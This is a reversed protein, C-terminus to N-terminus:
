LGTGQELLPGIDVDAQELVTNAIADIYGAARQLAMRRREAELQAQPLASPDGPVVRTLRYVIFGAGPAAVSGIYPGAEPTPAGFVAASLAAPVDGERRGILRIPESSAEATGAILMEFPLAPDASLVSALQAGREDAVAKAAEETLLERIQGSVNEIPQRGAPKRSLVNAVLLTDDYQIFRLSDDGLAAGDGFLSSVIEPVNGFPQAQRAHYDTAQAVTLGTAEAIEALSAGQFELDSIQGQLDFLVDDVRSERYRSEVEGRVEALTAAGGGRQDDLRLIHWGFESRVVDSLEGPALAFVADEVPGVFDGRRVWGLDGGQRASGADVSFEAALAAFDEGARLRDLLAQAEEKVADPNDGPALLIQSVRREESSEYDNQVSSFYDALTDEDVSVRAYATDRDLQVYEVNIMEPTRYSDPDSEYYALVDAETVTVDDIYADPSIVAYEVERREDRLEIVRRFAGPTVFESDALNQQYGQMVLDRRVTAEYQAPVFGATALAARYTEPDFRGDIQFFPTNAIYDQLQADSVAFGEAILHQTLSRAVVVGQIAQTQLQQRYFDPIQQGQFQAEINRYANQFDRLPVEEGNIKAAYQRPSITYNLGTGALLLLIVGLVVKGTTGMFRERIDNLM